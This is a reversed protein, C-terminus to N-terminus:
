PAPKKPLSDNVEFWSVHTDYFVHRQPARDLETEFLALAIHLEGPWRQSRFFMPSGCRGCSAREAGPSSQHWCLHSGPDAITATVEEVGVWSVFAAGHARRCMSCHCHAVWKTPFRVAFSVAGCLCKGSAGGPASAAV